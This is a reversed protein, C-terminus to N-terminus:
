YFTGRENEGWRVGIEGTKDLSTAYNQAAGKVTVKYNATGVGNRAGCEPSSVIVEDGNVWYIPFTGNMTNEEGYITRSGAKQELTAGFRVEEGTAPQWNRDENQCSSAALLALVPIIFYNKTKM